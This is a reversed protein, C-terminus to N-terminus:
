TSYLWPVCPHYMTASQRQCPPFLCQCSLLSTCTCSQHTIRVPIQKPALVGVEDVQYEKGTNMLRVVDGPRMEGDVVRFYVIVGQLDM